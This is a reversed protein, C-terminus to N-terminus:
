CFVLGCDVWVWCGLGVLQTVQWLLLIAYGCAFGALCLWLCVNWDLLFCCFCGFISVGCRLGVVAHVIFLCGVVWGLDFGFEFLGAVVSLLFCWLSGTFLNLDVACWRFCRAVDVIFVFYGLM